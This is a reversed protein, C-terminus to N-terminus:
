VKLLTQIIDGWIEHNIAFNIIAKIEPVTLKDIRILKDACDLWTEKQRLTSPKNLHPFKSAAYNCIEKIDESHKIKGELTPATETKESVQSVSNNDKIIKNNSITKYTPNLESNNESEIGLNDTNNESDESKRGWSKAKKTLKIYEKVGLKQTIILGKKELSKYYRYMTDAKDTLLPLEKCAKNRSAFYYQENEVTISEAWSPLSYIWDFLYAEQISLGWKQSSVNDILSSYKMIVFYFARQTESLPGVRVGQVFSVM